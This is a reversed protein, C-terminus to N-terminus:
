DANFRQLEMEPLVGCDKSSVFDTMVKPNFKAGNVYRGEKRM